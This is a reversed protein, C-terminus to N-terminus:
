MEEFILFTCVESASQLLKSRENGRLLDRVLTLISSLTSYCVNFVYNVIFGLFGTFGTSPVPDRNNVFIRQLYRDNIVQPERDNPISSAFVSPRGERLNLQEQIAVELDWQHRSLIDRCAVIDDIGILDQFQLVKETQDATLGDDDMTTNEWGLVRNIEFQIFFFYECWSHICNYFNISFFVFNSWLKKLYVFITLLLQVTHFKVIQSTM